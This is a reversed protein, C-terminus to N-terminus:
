LYVTIGSKEKPKLKLPRADCCVSCFAVLIGRIIFLFLTNMGMAQEAYAEERLFTNMEDDGCNFCGVHPLENETLRALVIAKPNVPETAAM